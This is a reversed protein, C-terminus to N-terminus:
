ASYGKKGAILRCLSLWLVDMEDLSIWRRITTQCQARCDIGKM